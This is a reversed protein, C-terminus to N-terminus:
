KPDEFKRIVMTDFTERTINNKIVEKLDSKTYYELTESKPFHGGEKYIITLSYLETMKNIGIAIINVTMTKVTDANNM